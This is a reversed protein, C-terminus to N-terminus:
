CTLRIMVRLVSSSRTAATAITPVAAIPFGGGAVANSQHWTQQGASVHPSPQNWYECYQEAILQLPELMAHASCSAIQGSPYTYTSQVPLMCYPGLDDDACSPPAGQNSMPSSYAREARDSPKPPVSQLKPEVCLLGM